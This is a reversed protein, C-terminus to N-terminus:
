TEAKKGSSIHIAFSVRLQLHKSYLAVPLLGSLLWTFSKCICRKPKRQLALWVKGCSSSTLMNLTVQQDHQNERSQVCKKCHPKKSSPLFYALSCYIGTLELSCNHFSSITIEHLLPYWSSFLYYTWLPTQDKACTSILWWEYAWDAGQTGVREFM